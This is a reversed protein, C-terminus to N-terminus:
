IRVWHDTAKGLVVITPLIKIAVVNQQIMNICKIRTVYGSIYSTRGRDFVPTIM